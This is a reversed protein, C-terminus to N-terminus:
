MVENTDDDNIDIVKIDRHKAEVKIILPSRLNVIQRVTMQYLSLQELYISIISIKRTVCILNVNNKYYWKNNHGTANDKPKLNLSM